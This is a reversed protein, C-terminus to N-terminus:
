VKSRKKVRLYGNDNRKDFSVNKDKCYKKFNTIKRYKAFDLRAQSVPKIYVKCLIVYLVFALISLASVGIGLMLGPTHYEFVIQIDQAAPIVVSMFGSNTELIEAESGNVTAVWGNDFPVSFFIMTEEYSTITATFGKSTYDFESASTSARDLCDEYYKAVTYEATSVDFKDLVKAWKAEDEDPIIATKVMLLLIKETSLHAVDSETVYSEYTFGMPIYYENEWIDYGNGNGYYIWGTIAPDSYDEGAFYDDDTEDDFLWRVSTIARLAHNTNDSIEERDVGIYDYFELISNSVSSNFIQLSSVNWFMSNNETSQYFDSRESDSITIPLDDGENLSYNVLRDSLEETLIKGSSIFFMGYFVSIISVFLIARRAINEKKVYRFMFILLALGLFVMACYAFFRSPSQMLGMVLKGSETLNPMFGFVLAIVTSIMFSVKIAKKWDTRSNELSMITALSCFLTLIYFWSTAELEGFAQFMTSFLPVVACVFMVVILTKLWHKRRINLWAITGTMGFLPLWAGLSISYDSFGSTTMTPLDSPFFMSILITLYYISQSYVVADVGYVTSITDYSDWVAIISPVLLLSALGIGILIEFILFIMQKFSLRYVKFIIKVILYILLFVLQGFFLHYNSLCCIFISLSVVCRKRNIAFGDLSALLLPLFVIAEHFNNFFVNFISFGSFAYLIAGLIAHDKNKVYRNLFVYSTLTACAFKLVLLPGMLYELFDSPFPLTIWFFPSGLLYSSYSSIFSSGLDTTHSWYIAGSRVAEHALQYYPLQQSTFEGFSVFIGGYEFIFPVFILFSLGLGMLFAKVYYNKYLSKDKFRNEM